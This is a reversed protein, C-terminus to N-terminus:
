TTQGKINIIRGTVGSIVILWLISIILSFICFIIFYVLETSAQSLGNFYKETLVSQTVAFLILHSILWLFWWILLVFSRKNETSHGDVLVNVEGFKYIESLIQYPRFLVWPFVWGFLIWKEYKFNKQGVERELFRYCNSYWYVLLIGIALATVLKSFFLFQSLNIKDVVHQDLKVLGKNIDVLLGLVFSSVFIVAISLFIDAILVMSFLKKIEILSKRNM